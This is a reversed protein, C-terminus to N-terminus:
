DHSGCTRGGASLERQGAIRGADRLRELYGLLLRPNLGLADTIEFLDFRAGRPSQVFMRMAGRDLQVTTGHLEHLLRNVTLQVGDLRVGGRRLMADAISAILAIESVVFMMAHERAPTQLFVQDIGVGSKTFRICHEVKYQEGYLGAIGAATMGDRYRPMDRESEPIDTILVVAARRRSERGAWERDLEVAINRVGFGRRPEGAIKGKGGPMRGRIDGEYAEYSVRYGEPTVADVYERLVSESRFYWSGAEASLRERLASAEAEMAEAIARARSERLVYVCRLRVPEGISEWSAPGGIADFVGDYYSIGEGQPSAAEAADIVRDKLRGGFNDPCKTVFRIGLDQALRLSTMTALKSDAVYVIGRREEEPMIRGFFELTDRDAKVDSVNGSHGRFDRLIRNSDVCYQMAYHLVDKRGDKPHGCYAPAIGGEGADKEQGYFKFNTGDDHRVQSSFGYRAACLEATEHFLEELDMGSLTDLCRGLADDNLSEPRVGPGFILDTPAGVYSREVRYLPLKSGMDFVPGAMCKVGMGPSLIRRAPDHPCRSDIHGRIGSDELMAMMIAALASIGEYEETEHDVFRIGSMVGMRDGDPQAPRGARLDPFM